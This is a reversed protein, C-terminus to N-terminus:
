NHNNPEQEQGEDPLIGGECVCVGWTPQHSSTCLQTKDWMAAEGISYLGTQVPLETEIVFQINELCSWYGSSFTAESTKKVQGAVTVTFPCLTSRSTVADKLIRSGLSLIVWCSLGSFIHITGERYLCFLLRFMNHFDFHCMHKLLRCSSLAAFYRLVWVSTHWQTQSFYSLKCVWPNCFIALCSFFLM